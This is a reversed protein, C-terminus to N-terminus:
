PIMEVFRDFNIPYETNRWFYVFSGEGRSQLKIRSYPILGYTSIVPVSKQWKKMRKELEKRWLSLTVNSMHSVSCYCHFGGSPTDVSLTKDAILKMWLPPAGGTSEWFVEHSGFKGEFDVVIFNSNFANKECGVRVAFNRGKRFGAILDEDSLPEDDVGHSGRIPTKSHNAILMLSGSYSRILNFSYM